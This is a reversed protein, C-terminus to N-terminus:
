VPMMADPAGSHQWNAVAKCTFIVGVLFSVAGLASPVLGLGILWGSSIDYEDFEEDISDEDDDNLTLYLLIWFVTHSADSLFGITYLIAATKYVCKTFKCLLVIAMVIGIVSGVLQTLMGLLTIIHIVLIFISARRAKKVHDSTNHLIPFCCCGKEDPRHQPQYAQPPVIVTTPQQVPVVVPLTKDMAAM